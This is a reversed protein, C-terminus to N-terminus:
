GFFNAKWQKDMESLLSSSRNVRDAALDCAIQALEEDNQKIARVMIERIRRVKTDASATSIGLVIGCVHKKHLNYRDLYSM